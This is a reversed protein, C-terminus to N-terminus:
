SNKKNFLMKIMKNKENNNFNQVKIFANIKQIIDNKSHAGFINLWKNYYIKYTEKEKLKENIDSLLQDNQMKLYDINEILSKIWNLLNNLNYDNDANIDGDNITSYSNIYLTNIKEILSKQLKEEVYIKRLLKSKEIFSLSKYFNPNINIINKSDGQNPMNNLINKINNYINICKINQKKELESNQRKIFILENQIENQNIKLEELIKELKLLTKAKKSNNSNQNQSNNASNKTIYRETESDLKNKKSIFNSSNKKEIFSKNYINIDNFLNNLSKKGENIKNLEFYTNLSEHRPIIENKTRHSYININHANNIYKSLESLKINKANANNKIKNDNKFNSMKMKQSSYFYDSKNRDKTMKIIKNKKNLEYNSETKSYYIEKDFNDNKNRGKEIEKRFPFPIFSRNTRLNNM